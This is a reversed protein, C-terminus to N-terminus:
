APPLSMDHDLSTLDTRTSAVGVIRLAMDAYAGAVLGTPLNSDSHWRAIDVGLSSIARAPMRPETVTFAGTRIGEAIITRFVGEIAMRRGVIDAHHTAGLHALEYNIVRAAKASTLHFTAFAVMVQFLQETPDTDRAAAVVRSYVEEHGQSAIEYLLDEKTPYHVYMASPSMGAGTAIDRTSTGHYGRDAFADVAAAVLRARTAIAKPTEPRAAM